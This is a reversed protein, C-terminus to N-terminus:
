RPCIPCGGSNLLLAGAIAVIPTLLLFAALLWQGVSRAQAVQATAAVGALLGIVAPVYDVKVVLSIVFTVLAFVIWGALLAPIWRGVAGM